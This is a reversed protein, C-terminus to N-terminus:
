TVVSDIDLELFTKPLLVDGELALAQFIEYSM